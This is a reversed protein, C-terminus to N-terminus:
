AGVPTILGHHRDYPRHLRRGRGTVADAYFVLQWSTHRLREVAAVAYPVISDVFKRHQIRSM